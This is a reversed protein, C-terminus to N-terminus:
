RGHYGGVMKSLNKDSEIYKTVGGAKPSNLIADLGEKINAVTEAMSQNHAHAADRVDNTTLSGKVSHDAEWAHCGCSLCM